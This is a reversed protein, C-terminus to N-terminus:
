NTGQLQFDNWGPGDPDYPVSTGHFEEARAGSAGYAAYAPARVVPAIRQHTIHRPRADAASAAACLAAVTAFVCLAKSMFNMAYEKDIARFSGKMISFPDLARELTFITLSGARSKDQISTRQARIFVSWWM